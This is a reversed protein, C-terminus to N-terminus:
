RASIEIHSLITDTEGDTFARAWAVVQKEVDSRTKGVFGTSYTVKQVKTRTNRYDCRRSFRADATWGDGPASAPLVELFFPGLSYM